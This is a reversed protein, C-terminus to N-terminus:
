TTRAVVSIIPVPNTTERTAVAAVIASQTSRGTSPGRNAIALTVELDKTEWLCPPILGRGRRSNPGGGKSQGSALHTNKRSDRRAALEKRVEDEAREAM